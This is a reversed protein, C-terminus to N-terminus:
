KNILDFLIINEKPKFLVTLVVRVLVSSPFNKVVIEVTEFNFLEFWFWIILWFWFSIKNPCDILRVSSCSKVKFLKVLFTKIM